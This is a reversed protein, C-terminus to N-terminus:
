CEKERERGVTAQDPHMGVIATCGQLLRRGVAGQAWEWGFLAREQALDTCSFAQSLDRALPSKALGPELVAQYARRHRLTNLQKRSLRVARPDVVTCPIGRRVSLEFAVGGAGGAVDLVGVPSAALRAHGMVEVLLDVMRAARQQKGQGHAKRRRTRKAGKEGRGMNDM